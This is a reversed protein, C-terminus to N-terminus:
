SKRSVKLHAICTVEGAQNRAICKYTGDDEPFAGAITLQHIGNQSHMQFYKSPKIVQNNYYWTIIPDPSALIKCQFTVSDGENIHQDRMPEQLQPAAQSVMPATSRKEEPQGSTSLRASCTAKGNKNMVVCEFVGADEPRIEYILLTYHDEEYFYKWRPNDGLRKGDKCWYVDPRPYGSVQCDFTAPEGINISLDRMQVHFEPPTEKPKTADEAVTLMGRCEAMGFPNIARVTIMGADEPFVEPILLFSKQYLNTVQFDRSPQIEVGERFWQIEATPFGTFHVMFKATDAEEVTCPEPMLDFVPACGEQEDEKREKPILDRFLKVYILM